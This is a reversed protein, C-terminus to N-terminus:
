GDRARVGVLIAPRAPRQFIKLSSISTTRPRYSGQSVETLAGVSRRDRFMLQVPPTPTTWVFEYGSFFILFIRLPESAARTTAPAKIPTDDGAEARIEIEMSGPM